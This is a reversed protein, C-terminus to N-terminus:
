LRQTVSRVESTAELTSRALCPASRPQPPTVLCSHVAWLGPGACQRPPKLGDAATRQPVDSCTPRMRLSRRVRGVGKFVRTPWWPPGQLRRQVLGSLRTSSDECEAHRSRLPGGRAGCAGERRESVDPQIRRHLDLAQPTWRRVVCDAITRLANSYRNSYKRGASARTATGSEVRRRHGQSRGEPCRVATGVSGQLPERTTPRAWDGTSTEFPERRTGM